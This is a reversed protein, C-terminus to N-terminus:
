QPPPIFQNEPKWNTNTDLYDKDVEQLSDMIEPLSTNEILKIVVMLGDNSKRCLNVDSNVCNTLIEVMDTDNINIIFIRRM